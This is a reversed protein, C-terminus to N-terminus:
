QNRRQSAVSLTRSSLYYYMVPEIVAETKLLPQIRRSYEHDEGWNIEPFMAQLAIERKVPSWHNPHRYYINNAEYWSTYLISHKFVKPNLSDVTIIGNIGICDLQETANDLASLIEKIYYGPVLDDDDIFCVYDGQAQVLLENRKTGISKQRDDTNILIEVDNTAQPQILSLLRDLFYKREKLSCILISLKM